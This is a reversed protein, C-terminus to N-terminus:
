WKKAAIEKMVEIELDREAVLKKLRANRTVNFFRVSLGATSRKMAHTRSTAFGSASRLYGAARRGLGLGPRDRRVSDPFQRKRCVASFGPRPVPPGRFGCRKRELEKFRKPNRVRKSGRHKWVGAGFMLAFLSIGGLRQSSPTIQNLSFSQWSVNESITLGLKTSPTRSPVFDFMSFVLFNPDAFNQM